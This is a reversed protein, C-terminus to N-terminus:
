LRGSHKFRLEGGRLASLPVDQVETTGDDKTLILRVIYDQPLARDLHVWGAAEPTSSLAANGRGGTLHLDRIAWGEAHSGGDTIYEFRLLIRQGAFRSLDIQEEVWAPADGGGSRGYYGPGLALKVPDDTMTQTGPLAEWTAGGDVSVSVYGFDYWPEIDFWTWFTLAPDVASALDAAYTLSTDIGDGRNSWWIPGEDLASPPLVSVEPEGRFRLVYEGGNYIDTLAYYDAGFQHAEESTEDGVAIEYQVKAEVKRDPNAYPGSELNLINATIWDAFVDRFTLGTAAAVLFQDIGAPGDAKQRAVTGLAVDGGFRSALYRLFAAAAGYHPQNGGAPWDNLQTEPAAEFRGITSAAGGALILATESLGENVWSEEGADNNHQILHQLEHALVVTFSASGPKLSRDLYVMEAENSLPRVAKVYADEGSYYGGIGSGLDAYLVIIRPDGDVGPNAPEGFVGTVVPWVTAEFVDAAQAVAEADAGVADDIYFYAHPSVVQMTASITIINPPATHALVAPTIRSVVFERVSGVAPEGSFPRAAPAPFVTRRYRRALEIPDNEPLDARIDILSPLDLPPDVATEAIPPSPASTVSTATPPASDAADDCASAALGLAACM